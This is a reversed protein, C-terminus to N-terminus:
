SELYDQLQNRRSPHRLKRMAKQEIQRVRERTIGFRAGIDELTMPQEGDIGFRLRVVEAEREGLSELVHVIHEKMLHASAQDVPAIAMTDPIFDGLVTDDEAGVQFDLSVPQQSMLTLERVRERTVGASAAVEVDTPERGLEQVLQRRSRTVRNLAEVMHVPIRITRGQDAVARSIAQRIWWTAYTSFKFGRQYEFKEVARLLGINGEQVLDLLGMGRSVHRKAISVVLRLNAETLERRALHRDAVLRELHARSVVDSAPCTPLLAEARLGDEMRRGISQEQEWTLLRVKGIERLYLRVPDELAEEALTDREATAAEEVMVALEAATPERSAHTEGRDTMFAAPGNREV